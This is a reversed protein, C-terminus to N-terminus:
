RAMILKERLRRMAEAKRDHPGASQPKARAMSAHRSARAALAEVILEREGVTLNINMAKGRTQRREDFANLRGNLTAIQTIVLGFSTELAALQTKINAIDARVHRLESLVRELQRSIFDFEVETM